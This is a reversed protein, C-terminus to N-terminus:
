TTKWQLNEQLAHLSKRPVPSFRELIIYSTLALGIGGVIFIGAAILWATWMVFHFYDHLFFALAAVLAILGVTLLVAGLGGFEVARKTQRLDEHLEAKLMDFQQRALKQADDLIGAVLATVAAPEAPKVTDIAMPLHPTDTM